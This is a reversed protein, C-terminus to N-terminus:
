AALALQKPACRQCSVAVDDPALALSLKEWDKRLYEPDFDEVTFQKEEIVAFWYTKEKVQNFKLTFTYGEELVKRLAEEVTLYELLDLSVFLRSQGSRPIPNFICDNITQM